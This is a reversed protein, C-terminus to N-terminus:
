NRLEFRWLAPDGECNVEHTLTLYKFTLPPAIYKYDEYDDASKRFEMEKTIIYMDASECTLEGYWQPCILTSTFYVTPGHESDYEECYSNIFELKFTFNTSGKYVEMLINPVEKYGDERGEIRM